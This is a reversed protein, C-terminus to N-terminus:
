DMTYPDRGIPRDHKTNEDIMIQLDQSLGVFSVEYKRHGHYHKEGRVIGKIKIEFMSFFGQVTLDLWLEEGINFVEDTRLNLGGASLDRVEADIWAEGDRSVKAEVHFHRGRQYTRREDENEYLNMHM